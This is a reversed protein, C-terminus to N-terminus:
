AVQSEHKLQEKHRIHYTVLIVDRLKKPTEEVKGALFLCTTGIAQKYSIITLKDTVGSHVFYFFVVGLGFVYSAIMNKSPDVRM